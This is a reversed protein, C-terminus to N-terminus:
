RPRFSSRNYDRWAYAHRVHMKRGYQSRWYARYARKPVFVLLGYAIALRLALGKTVAEPQSVLEPAGGRFSADKDAAKLQEKLNEQHAEVIEFKTMLPHLFADWFTKEMKPGQHCRDTEFKVEYASAALVLGTAATCIGMM